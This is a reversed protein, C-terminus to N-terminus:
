VRVPAPPAPLVGLQRLLTLDDRVAWHEVGKGDQYRIIHVLKFAIERGTPRIGMFEGTHRAHLTCFIAVTDGEEVLRHIEYRQETFAGKLWLM